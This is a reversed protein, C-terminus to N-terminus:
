ECPFANLLAVQVLTHAANHLEEPHNNLWKTVIKVLQGRTVAAPKCYPFGDWSKGQSADAVGVIYGSCNAGYEFSIGADELECAKLLKNGDLYTIGRTGAFFVGSYLVLLLFMVMQKM